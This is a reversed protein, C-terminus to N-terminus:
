NANKRLLQINKEFSSANCIFSGSVVMDCNIKGVTNDNIGGDVSVKYRRNPKNSLINIKDITSEIFKQGGLGPYVSMVLVLEIRELYPELLSIDTDPNISIGCKIGYSHILDIMELIDTTAEYHFTIYEPLLDAYLVINKKVDKCMLHVDLPKINERLFLTMEDITYNKNEVFLGDMIDLHLYDCSTNNIENITKVEDNYKNKIFSVSIELKM